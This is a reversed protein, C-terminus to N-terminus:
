SFGPACDPNSQRMKSRVFAARRHGNHLSHRRHQIQTLHSYLPRKKPQSPVLSNRKAIQCVVM